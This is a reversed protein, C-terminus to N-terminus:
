QSVNLPRDGGPQGIAGNRIERGLGVQRSVPKGTTLRDGERVRGISLRAKSYLLSFGEAEGGISLGM